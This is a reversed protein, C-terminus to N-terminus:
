LLAERELAIHYIEVTSLSLGYAKLAISSVPLLNDKRESLTSLERGNYNRVASLVGLQPSTTRQIAAAARKGAVLTILSMAVGPLFNQM